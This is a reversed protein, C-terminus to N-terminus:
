YESRAHCKELYNLCLNYLKPFVKFVESHGEVGWLKYSSYQTYRADIGTFGKRGQAGWKHLLLLKALRIWFDKENYIVLVNKVQAPFAYDSDLAPNILIVTSFPAGMEAAYALLACGNSHGIGISGPRVLPLVKERAIKKNFFRVTFLFTWGYDAQSVEHGSACLPGVFKDTSGKGGDVVNFGHALVFHM